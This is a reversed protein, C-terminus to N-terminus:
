KESRSASGYLYPDNPDIKVPFNKSDFEVVGRVMMESHNGSKDIKELTQIKPVTNKHPGETITGQTNFWTNGESDLWCKVIQVKAQEVPTPDDAKLFNQVTGDPLHVSKLYLGKEGIWTGYWLQKNPQACGTLLLLSLLTVVSLGVVTRLVIRVGTM